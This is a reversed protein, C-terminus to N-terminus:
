FKLIQLVKDAEESEAKIIEAKRIM